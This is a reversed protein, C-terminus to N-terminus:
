KKGGKATAKETKGTEREVMEENVWAPEGDGRWVRFVVGLGADVDLIDGPYLDVPAPLTQIGSMSSGTVYVYEMKPEKRDGYLTSVTRTGRPEQTLIDTGKPCKAKIDLTSILM